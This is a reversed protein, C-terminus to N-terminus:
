DYDALSFSDFIYFDFDGKVSEYDEPSRITWTATKAGMLRCLKLSLNSAGTYEFSIFDPRTAVNELMLSLLVYLPKGAYEEDTWFNKALQGRIVDPANQKYWLVAFPHFCQICYAGDYEQLLVNSKECVLTDVKDLKYELLIPVQGDILALVEELTPIQIDTDLLTLERLQEYTFDWINGEVGCMRELTADHFVMPIGDKTLQLDLEIGYGADIAAQFAELSNEPVGAENDFFGRHAYHYGELGSFDPKHFMRPAILFLYLLILAALIVCLIILPKKFKKM